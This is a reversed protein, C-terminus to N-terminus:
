KFDNPKKRSLVHLLHAYNQGLAGGLAARPIEPNDSLLPYEMTYPVVLLEQYVVKGRKIDTLTYEIASGTECTAWVCRPFQVDKVSAYLSYKASAEDAALYGAQMLAMGLSDAAGDYLKGMRPNEADDYSVKEVMIAGKFVDSHEIQEFVVPSPMMQQTALPVPDCATLTLLLITLEAHKKM